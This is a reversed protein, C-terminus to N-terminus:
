TEISPERDLSLGMQVIFLFKFFHFQIILNSNRVAVGKINFKFGSSKANHDLLAIALQPIYHGTLLALRNLLM